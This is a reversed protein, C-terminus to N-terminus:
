RPDPRPLELPVLGPEPRQPTSAAPPPPLPNWGDVKQGPAALLPAFSSKKTRPPLLSAGWCGFAAALTLPLTLPLWEQEVALGIVAVSCFASGALFLAARRRHTAPPSQEAARRWRMRAWLGFAAAAGFGLAIRPGDLDLLNEVGVYLLFAALLCLAVAAGYRRRGIQEM